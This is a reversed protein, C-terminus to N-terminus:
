PFTVYARVPLGGVGRVSVPVASFRFGDMPLAGLNALHECIPIGAALLTTRVPREGVSTDDVNVSDIGVLAAREQVLHRAAAATLFPHGEFYADTPWHRDWDTRVLVARGAVEYPLLQPRDVAREGSGVVDVVVGDLDALRELPLPAVDDGGADGHLPSHVSTGSTGDEVVHSVDIRVRGDGGAAAASPRARRKHAESIIRKNLIRVEGVMLLRLDRVIYAALEEDAIEAGDIDLRFGQGQLGGGNSFDLEFDFQVRHEPM